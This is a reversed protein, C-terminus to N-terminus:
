KWRGIAIIHFSMESIFVDTNQYVFQCQSRNSEVTLGVVGNNAEHAYSALRGSRQNNANNNSDIYPHSLHPTISVCPSDAFAVPYILTVLDADYYNRNFDRTGRRYIGSQIMTGDPLKRVEFGGIKQSTIEDRKIFYNPLWGYKATWIDGATTFTTRFTGDSAIGVSGNNNFAICGKSHGILADMTNIFKVGWRWNDNGIRYLDNSQQIFLAGTMTDGSKKVYNDATALEVPSNWNNWDRATQYFFRNNHIGIRVCSYAGSADGWGKSILSWGNTGNDKLNGKTTLGVFTGLPLQAPTAHMFHTGNVAIRLDKLAVADTIGYGALTTQCTAIEQWNLTLTQNNWNVQSFFRRKLSLYYVELFSFAGYVSITLEFEGRTNGLPLGQFRHQPGSNYFSAYYRGVGRYVPNLNEIIQQRNAFNLNVEQSGGIPPVKMINIKNNVEAVAFSTAVTDASRSDVANSKKSNTIFNGFNRINADILDKLRKIARPTAAMDEANSDLGSYLKTIGKRLLTALPLRHSHGTHDRETRSDEDLDKPTIGLFPSLIRRDTVVGNRDIDALIQVYHQYGATDVWDNKSVQLFELDTQYAGTVTCHHVLDVYISCPLSRVTLTQRTKNDARVGEIYGNGVEVFYQNGTGRTVKFGDDFFIARGYLDRNTLRIKEDLGKLRSTFDIQWTEASVSLNTLQKAGTFQLLISRTISNGQVGNRNKTKKITDTYVAVALLNRSRNILGIFNFDFDGIETGMTVSYVVANENVVGAQSIAQRHVIHNAAPIRLHNVLSGATLNPINAFIMEDFAVSGRNATQDAVYREFERTALTTM